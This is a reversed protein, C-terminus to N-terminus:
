FDEARYTFPIGLNAFRSVVVGDGGKSFETLEGSSFDIPDGLDFFLFRLLREEV